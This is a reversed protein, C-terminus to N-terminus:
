LLKAESGQWVCWWESFLARTSSTGGGMESVAITKIVMTVGGECVTENLLRM